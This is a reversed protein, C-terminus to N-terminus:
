ENCGCVRETLNEAIEASVTRLDDSYLKPEGDQGYYWVCGCAPCFYYQIEM